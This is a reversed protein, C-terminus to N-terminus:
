NMVSTRRSRCEEALKEPYVMAVLIAGGGAKIIIAPKPTVSSTKTIFRRTKLCKAEDRARIFIWAM